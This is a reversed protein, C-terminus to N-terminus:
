MNKIVKEEYEKTYEDKFVGKLGVPNISIIDIDPYNAKAFEALKRWPRVMWSYDYDTNEVNLKKAYGTKRCDAGVIYIKDPRTWLAFHCVLYLSTGYGKLPSVSIDLPYVLKNTYEPRYGYMAFEYIDVYFTEVGRQERFCEPIIMDNKRYNIAFFKILDDGYNLIKKFLDKQNCYGCQFFYDYRIDERYIANNVGMHIANPIPTYYDFTPGTGTIVVTKGKNIGKYKPFVKQHQVMAPLYIDTITALRDVIVDTGLIHQIRKKNKELFEWFIADIKKALDNM